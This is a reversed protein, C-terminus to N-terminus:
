SCVDDRAGGLIEAPQARALRAIRQSAPTAVKSVPIPQRLQWLHQSIEHKGKTQDSTWEVADDVALEALRAIIEYTKEYVTVRIEM